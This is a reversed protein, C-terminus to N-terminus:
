PRRAVIMYGLSARAATGRVARPTRRARLFADQVAGLSRRVSRRTAHPGLAAVVGLVAFHLLMRAVGGKAELTIVEFGHREFLDSLGHHTFRRMDQPAEHTPYLYPVSALVHGGRRVLRALEGMAAEADVVHELVETCLVTDFDEDPLPVRELPAVVDAGSAQDPDLAVSEAVLPRYWDLYPRNGCGADLLRGRLLHRNDALWEALAADPILSSTTLPDSYPVGYRIVAAGRRPRSTSAATM